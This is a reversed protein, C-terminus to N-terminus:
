CEEVQVLEYDHTLFASILTSVSDAKVKLAIAIRNKELPFIALDFVRAKCSVAITAPDLKDLCQAPARLTLLHGRQTLGRRVFLKFIDSETLIGIVRGKEIVPLAGVKGRLMIQAAQEVHANPHISFLPFKILSDVHRRLTPHDEDQEIADISTPLAHAIDRETLMGIAKGDRIVPARRLGREEFLAIAEGCTSKADLTLVSTSMLDRVLM